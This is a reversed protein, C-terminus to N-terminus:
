LQALQPIQGLVKQLPSNIEAYSAVWSSRRGRILYKIVKINGNVCRGILYRFYEKKMEVAEIM